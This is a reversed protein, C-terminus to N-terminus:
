RKSVGARKELSEVRDRLQRIELRLMANELLAEATITRLVEVQDPFALAQRV